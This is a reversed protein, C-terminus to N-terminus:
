LLDGRRSEVGDVWSLLRCVFGCVREAKFKTVLDCRHQGLACPAKNKCQGHQSVRAYNPGDTLVKAVMRGQIPKGLAFQNSAQPTKVGSAQSSAAGVAPIAPAIAPIWHADRAVMTDKIVHGLIDHSERFKSM